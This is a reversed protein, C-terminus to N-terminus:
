DGRADLEEPGHEPLPAFEAALDTHGKFHGHRVSEVRVHRLAGCRACTTLTGAADSRTEWRHGGRLSCLLRRM